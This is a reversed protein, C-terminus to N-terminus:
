ANRLAALTERDERADDASYHPGLHRTGLHMQFEAVPLAALEAAKGLSLRNAAFLAIALELKAEAVTMRASELVDRPIELSLTANM